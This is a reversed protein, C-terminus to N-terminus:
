TTFHALEGEAIDEATGAVEPKGIWSNFSSTARVGLVYGKGACRLAMAIDGAGFVSDAAVLWLAM